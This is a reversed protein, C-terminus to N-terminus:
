YNRLESELDITPLNRQILYSNLVNFALCSVTLLGVGGPVPTYFKSKHYASKCVDGVIKRKKPAEAERANSDAARDATSEIQNIGADILITKDKVDAEKVFEAEGCAAIVMDADRTLAKVNRTFLDCSTVTAYYPYNSLMKTLPTGVLSGKGLIIVNLGKTEIGYYSLLVAIGLATPPKLSKPSLLNNEESEFSTFGDINKEKQIKGILEHINFSYEPPFPLQIMTSTNASDENLRAIMKEMEERTIQPTLRILESEIGLEPM